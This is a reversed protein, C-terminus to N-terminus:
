PGLGLGDAALALDDDAALGEVQLEASDAVASQASFFVNAVDSMLPKVTGRRQRHGVRRGGAGGVLWHVIGSHYLDGIACLFPWPDTLFPRSDCLLRRPM